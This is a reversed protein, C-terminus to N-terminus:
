IVKRVNGEADFVDCREPCLACVTWVIKLLGIAKGAIEARSPAGRFDVYLFSFLRGFFWVSACGFM